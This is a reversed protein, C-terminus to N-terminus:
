TLILTHEAVKIEKIKQSFLTTLFTQSVIYHIFLIHVTLPNITAWTKRSQQKLNQKLNVADIAAVM